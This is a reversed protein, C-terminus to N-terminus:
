VRRLPFVIVKRKTGSSDYQYKNYPIDDLIVRGKYTFHKEEYVEFLHIDRGKNEADFLAVNGRILFQDGSRGEGSFHIVNGKWENVYKDDVLSSTLVITNTANSIRIGGQYSVKFGRRIDNNTYVGDVVFDEIRTKNELEHPYRERLVKAFQENTTLGYKEFVIFQEAYKHSRDEFKVFYDYLDGTKTADKVFHYESRTRGLYPRLEPTKKALDYAKDLTEVVFKAGQDM